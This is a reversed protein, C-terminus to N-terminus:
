LVRGPLSQLVLLSEPGMNFILDLISLDPVFGFKHAFVQYYPYQAYKKQVQEMYVQAKPSLLARFDDVGSAPHQEYSQTYSMEPRWGICEWAFERQLALYDWLFVYPRDYFQFLDDQYYEFYPSTKYASVLTKWHVSQWPTTYAIKSEQIAINSASGNLVPVTLDMLGNAALIRCRNRFTQKQYHECAELYVKESQLMIAYAHVSGWYSVPILCSGYKTFDSM